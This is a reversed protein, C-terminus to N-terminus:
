GKIQRKRIKGLFKRSKKRIEMIEFGRVIKLFEKYITGVCGKIKELEIKYKKFECM